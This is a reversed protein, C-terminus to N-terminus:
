PRLAGYDEDPLGVGGCVTKFACWICIEGTNTPSYIGAENARVYADIAIRLRAYDRDNRWGGDVFKLEQLNIWRFKRSANDFSEDVQHNDHMRFKHAEFLHELMAITDPEFTALEGVGSDAWGSWFEPRTTAYCYASGQQNYRLYTPQRGSKFDDVCIYPKRYSFRLALKDITGTLTHTRGGTRIPVAFRYELALRHADEKCLLQYYDRLVRRGRERLGGYTQRPLWHTVRTAVQEIHEPEWYHTFTEVAVDCADNRGEHHLKELVLMAYHIVTGYVTASLAEPQPAAPDLKAREQYYKQLQCRAWSALDSQRVIIGGHGNPTLQPTSVVEVTATM